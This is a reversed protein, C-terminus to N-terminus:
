NRASFQEGESRVGENVSIVCSNAGNMTYERNKKEKKDERSAMMKVSMM